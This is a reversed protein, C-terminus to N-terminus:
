ILNNEMDAKEQSLRTKIIQWVMFKRMYKMDKQTFDFKSGRFNMFLNYMPPSQQIHIHFLHLTVQMWLKMSIGSQKYILENVWRALYEAFKCVFVGCDSTNEIQQPVPEDVVQSWKKIDLPEQIIFFIENLFREM